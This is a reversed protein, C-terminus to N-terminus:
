DYAKQKADAPTVTQTSKGSALDRQYGVRSVFIVKALTQRYDSRKADYVKRLEEPTFRFQKAREAMLGNVVIDRTAKDIQERYPSLRAIGSREAESALTLALAHQELFKHPELGAFRQQEPSLNRSIRELDGATFKQGNVTAIVTEPKIEILELPAAQPFACTAVCLFWLSLTCRM